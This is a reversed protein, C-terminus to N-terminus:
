VQHRARPIQSRVMELHPIGDEEYDNSARVFGFEEYFRQLYKQAGIRIASPGFLGGARQLGEAVLARGLGTRRVEPVTIVRGLSPEEYKVGPPVVRLYAVVPAGTWLHWCAADIGDLDLYPCRQEVVFVRARAALIAYLEDKSLESWALCHWDTVRKTV